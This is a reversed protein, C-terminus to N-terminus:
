ESIAMGNRVKKLDGFDTRKLSLTYLNKDLGAPIRKRGATKIKIAKFIEFLSLTTYFLLSILSIETCHDTVWFMRPDYGYHYPRFEWDPHYSGVWANYKADDPLVLFPLELFFYVIPFALHLYNKRYIRGKTLSLVLLYFCPGIALGFAESFDVLFLCHIIYGTYMLFIETLVAVISLLMLGHFLNSKIKRNEKSLFFLLLFIGQVIGLFIFVAFLDIRYPM